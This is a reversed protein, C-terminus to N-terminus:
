RENKVEETDIQTNPTIQKRPAKNNTQEREIRDGIWTNNHTPKRLDYIIYNETEKLIRYPLNAEIESTGNMNAVYRDFIYYDADIDKLFSFDKTEGAEVYAGHYENFKGCEDVSSTPYIQITKAVMFSSTIGNSMIIKPFELKNLDEILSDYYNPYYAFVDDRKPLIPDLVLPLICISLIIAVIRKILKNDFDLLFASYILVPITAYETLKDQFQKPMILVLIVGILWISLMKNEKLLDKKKWLLFGFLLITPLFFTLFTVLSVPHVNASLWIKLSTKQSFAVLLYILYPLPIIGWLSVPLLDKPEYSRSKIETLLYIGELLGYFVAVQPHITSILFLLIGNIISYKWKNKYFHKVTIFSLLLLSLEYSFHPTYLVATFTYLFKPVINLTTVTGGFLIYFYALINTISTAFFILIASPIIKEEKVFNKLFYWLSIIVFLAGLLKILIFIATENLGFKSFLLGAGSYLTFILGSEIDLQYNTRFLLQFSNLLAGNNIKELYSIQDLSASILWSFKMGGPTVISAIIYPLITLIFFIASICIYSAFTKNKFQPKEIKLIKLQETIKKM